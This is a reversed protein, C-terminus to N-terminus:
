RRGGFMWSLLLVAVALSGSALGLLHGNTERAGAYCVTDGGSPGVVNGLNQQGLAFLNEWGDILSFPLNSVM